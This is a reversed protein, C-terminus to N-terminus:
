SVLDEDYFRNLINRIEQAPGDPLEYVEKLLSGLESETVEGNCLELILAATTNLYHVRDKEKQHVIYGDTVTHIELDPARKPRRDTM